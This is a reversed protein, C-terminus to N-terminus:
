GSIEEVQPWGGVCAVAALDVISRVDRPMQHTSTELACATLWIDSNASKNRVYPISWHGPKLGSVSVRSGNQDGGPLKAVRGRRDRSRFEYPLHNLGDSAETM